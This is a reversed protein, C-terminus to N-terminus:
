SALLRKLYFRHGAIYTTTTGPLPEYIPEIHIVEWGEAGFKNLAEAEETLRLTVTKYEWKASM